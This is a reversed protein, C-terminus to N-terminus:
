HIKFIIDITSNNHLQYYNIYDILKTMLDWNPNNEDIIQKPNNKYVKLFHITRLHDYILNHRIKILIEKLTTTLDLLEFSHSHINLHLLDYNWFVLKVMEIIFEYFHIIILFLM